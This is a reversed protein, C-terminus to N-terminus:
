RTPPPRSRVRLQQRRTPPAPVPRVRHRRMPARPVFRPIPHGAGPRVPGGPGQGRDGAGRFGGPVLIGDLDDLNTMALLGVTDDSPVWRLDLRVDNATAGHRLAEVVSLYADPLDVYKGVVGITVADGAVASRHVMKEWDDLDPEPTSLELTECVVRDLGGRNLVLPVEYIDEVDTANIVAGPEVDCFLSIKRRVGEDIPRDSRVVIVDPQIGRSRLEAVSHQTPKTKLEESSGIFPVLTVHIYVTNAKGSTRACNASRRSSRSARSTM